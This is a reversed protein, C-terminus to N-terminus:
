GERTGENRAKAPVNKAFSKQMRDLRNLEMLFAM